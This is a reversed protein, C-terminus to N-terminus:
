RCPAKDRSLYVGIPPTIDQRGHRQEAQSAQVVQAGGHLYIIKQGQDGLMVLLVMIRQFISWIMAYDPADGAFQLVPIGVLQEHTPGLLTALEVSDELDM